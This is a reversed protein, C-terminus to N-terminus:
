SCVVFGTHIWLKKGDEEVFDKLGKIKVEQMKEDTEPIWNV